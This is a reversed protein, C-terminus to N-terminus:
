RRATEKRQEGRKDERTRPVWFDDLVADLGRSLTIPLVFSDLVKEDTTRWHMHNNLGPDFLLRHKKTKTIDM